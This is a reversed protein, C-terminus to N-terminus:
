NCMAIGMRGSVKASEPLDNFLRLLRRHVQKDNLHPFSARFDRENQMIFVFSGDVVGMNKPSRSRVKRNRNFPNSPKKRVQFIISEYVYSIGVSQGNGPPNLRVTSRLESRAQFGLVEAFADFM